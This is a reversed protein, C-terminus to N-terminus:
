SRPWRSAPSWITPATTAPPWGTTIALEALWKVYGCSWADAPLDAFPPAEACYDAPPEGAKARILFAAMQERTVPDAPCYLGPSCGTTIGADAIAAIYTAAWSDAAVDVFDGDAWVPGFTVLIAVTMLRRRLRRTRGLWTM